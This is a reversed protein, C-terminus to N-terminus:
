STRARCVLYRFRNQLRYSGDARRFPTASALIVERVAEEGSHEIAAVAGGSASVARVLTDDDPAEFPVDVRDARVPALGARRALGELM